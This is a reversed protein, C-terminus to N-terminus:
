GRDVLPLVYHLPPVRAPINIPQKEETIHLLRHRLVGGTELHLVVVLCRGGTIIIINSTAKGGPRGGTTNIYGCCNTLVRLIAVQLTLIGLVNTM